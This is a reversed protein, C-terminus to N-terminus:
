HSDILAEVSARVIHINNVGCRQRSAQLFIILKADLDMLIPPRGMARRDISTIPDPHLNKQEDIREKYAKKFNRITSEKL